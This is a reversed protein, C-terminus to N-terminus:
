KNLYWDANEKGFSTAWKSFNSYQNASGIKVGETVSTFNIIPIDIAFPFSGQKNVYYADDKTGLLLLNAWTTPKFKPLHVEIRNKEGPKYNVAIFPNYDRKYQIKDIGNPFERVVTFKQKNAVAVKANPFLIIQNSEELSYFNSQSVNINGLNNNIVYGFANTYNAGDHVPSFTDVIKTIKNHNDFTITSEYEVVVDNMDYDGGSPWVDEFALTGKTTETSYTTETDTGDSISPRSPDFISEIPDADIYFLVDDYSDDNEDRFTQDEFGLVVKKSKPDYISICGAQSKYNASQNTYVNQGAVSYAWIMRNEITELDSWYNENGDTPFMDAILVFGVTYGKPFLDTGPLNGNEGFFQLRTKVSVGPCNSNMRPLIVYKPFAKIQAPTPTTNSKYYYYGIASHMDGHDNLLVLDLRAGDINSGSAPQTIAINLNKEPSVYRSNDYKGLSEDIRTMLEGLTSENSLKTDPSVVSYLAEVKSNWSKWRYESYAPDYSDYLSYLKYSSSITRYNSGINISTMTKSSPSAVVRAKTLDPYNAVNDKITVEVCRPVGRTESCVYIKNVYSPIEIQGSFSSNNDTFAKYIPEANLKVQLSNIETENNIKKNSIIREKYSNGNENLTYVELLAVRGTFGYNVNLTINRKTTFDFYSSEPKKTAEQFYDSEKVCSQLIMTVIAFFFLSFSKVKRM